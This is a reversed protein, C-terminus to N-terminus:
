YFWFLILKNYMSYIYLKSCEMEDTWDDCDNQGNCVKDASICKTVKGCSFETSRCELVSITFM